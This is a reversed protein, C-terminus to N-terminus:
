AVLVQRSTQYNSFYNKVKYHNFHHRFNKFLVNYGGWKLACINLVVIKPLLCADRGMDRVYAYSTSFVCFFLM